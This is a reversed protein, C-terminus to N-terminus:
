SRWGLLNDVRDRELRERVAGPLTAYAVLARELEAVTPVEGINQGLWLVM